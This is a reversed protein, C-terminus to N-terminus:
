PTYRMLALPATTLLVLVAQRLWRWGDDSYLGKRHPEFICFLAFSLACLPLAIAANVLVARSFGGIMIYPVFMLAWSELLLVSGAKWLRQEPKRLARLTWGLLALHVTYSATYPFILAPNDTLRSLYIWLLGASAVSAV